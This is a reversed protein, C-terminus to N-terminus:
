GPEAPTPAPRGAELDVLRVWPPPPPVPKEVMARGGRLTLVSRFRQEASRTLGHIDFLEFPGREIELIAIDAISGPRLTGIEGAMGILEAPRSTVARIIEDLALGLFLFKTMVTLLTFQPTGDGRVRHVNEQDEVLLPGPLSGQHLDTSLTDPWFGHRALAESSEFSFSGAGHGIDFLIGADRARLVAPLVRGRDDVMKQGAGTFSHTVIDGPRLLALVDRLPPPTGSLHCMVRLGTMESALVAKRLPELGPYCFGEEGMRAKIGVVFDRTQDAVRALLDVNCALPNCYEDYNLGVLGLYSINIYAKIRAESRRAVYEQLAPISYAGASGADIWTTVGSRWAISDADIGGHGAGWFVHTHMDILGPTVLNGAADIVHTASGAPLSSEVAVIRDGTVGVDGIADLDSAPDIVRGGRIILDFPM